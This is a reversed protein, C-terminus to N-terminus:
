IRHWVIRRLKSARGEENQLLRLKSPIVDTEKHIPIEKKPHVYERWEEKIEPRKPM